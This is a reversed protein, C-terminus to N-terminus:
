FATKRECVNIFIRHLQLQVLARHDHVHATQIVIFHPLHICRVLREGHRLRSVVPEIDIGIGVRGYDRNPAAFAFRRPVTWGEDDV